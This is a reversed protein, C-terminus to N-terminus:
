RPGTYNRRTLSTGQMPAPPMSAPAGQRGAAIDTLVMSWRGLPKLVKSRRHRDALSFRVFLGSLRAATNHADRRLASMLQRRIPWCSLASMSSMRHTAALADPLAVFCAQQFRGGALGGAFINQGPAGFCVEHYTRVSAQQDISPVETRSKARSSKPRFQQDSTAQGWCKLPLTVGLFTIVPWRSM